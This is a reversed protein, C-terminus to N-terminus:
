LSDILKKNNDVVKKATAYGVAGIKKINNISILKNESHLKLIANVAKLESDTNYEFQDTTPKNKKIQFNNIKYVNYSMSSALDSHGLIEAFYANQSQSPSNILYNYTAYLGRLSHPHLRDDGTVRVIYRNLTTPYDHSPKAKLLAHLKKIASSVLKYDALLPIGFAPPDDDHRGKKLAGKFIAAHTDDKDPKLIITHLLESSRRGTALLLATYLEPFSDSTLGTLVTNLFETGDEIEIVNNARNELRKQGEKNISVYEAQTLVMEQVEKPVDVTIDSFHTKIILAKLRSLSSKLTSPNTYSARAYDIIAKTVTPSDRKSEYLHLGTKLFKVSM